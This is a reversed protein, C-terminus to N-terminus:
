TKRVDNIHCNLSPIEIEGSLGYYIRLVQPYVVDAQWTQDFKSKLGIEIQGDGKCAPCVIELKDQIIRGLGSCDRCKVRQAVDKPFRTYILKLPNGKLDTWGDVIETIRSDQSIQTDAKVLFFPRTGRIRATVRENTDLRGFARAILENNEVVYDLDTILLKM